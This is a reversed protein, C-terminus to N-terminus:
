CLKPVSMQLAVREIRKSPTRFITNERTIIGAGAHLRWRVSYIVTSFFANTEQHLGTETANGHLRAEASKCVLVLTCAVGM